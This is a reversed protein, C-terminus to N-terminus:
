KTKNQKKYNYKTTAEHYEFADKPLNASQRAVWSHAILVPAAQGCEMGSLMSKNMALRTVIAM